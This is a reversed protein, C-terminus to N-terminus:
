SASVSLARLAESGEEAIGSVKTGAVLKGHNLMLKVRGKTDPSIVAYGNGSAHNDLTVVGSRGDRTITKITGAFRVTKM